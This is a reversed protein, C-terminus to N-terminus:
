KVSRKSGSGASQIAGAVKASAGGYVYAQPDYSNGAKATRAGAVAVTAAVAIAVFLKFLHHKSFM